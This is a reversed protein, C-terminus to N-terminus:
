FLASISSCVGGIVWGAIGGGYGAICGLGDKCALKGVTEMYKSNAWYSAPPGAVGRTVVSDATVKGIINNWKDKNQPNSWYIYSDTTVCIVCSLLEKECENLQVFSDKQLFQKTYSELEEPNKLTPFKSTFMKYVMMAERSLSDKQGDQVRTLKAKKDYIYKGKEILVKNQHAFETLMPKAIENIQQKSVINTSRSTNVLLKSYVYDLGASHQKAIPMMFDYSSTIQREQANSDEAYNANCSFLTLTMTIFFFFYVKKM